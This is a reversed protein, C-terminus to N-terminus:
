DHIEGGTNTAKVLATESYSTPTNSESHPKNRSRSNTEPIKLVGEKSLEYLL